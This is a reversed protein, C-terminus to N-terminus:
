SSSTRIKSDNVAKISYSTCPRENVEIAKLFYPYNLSHRSVELRASLSFAVSSKFNDTQIPTYLHVQYKLLKLFPKLFSLRYPVFVAYGNFFYM